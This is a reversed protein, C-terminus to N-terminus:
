KSKTRFWTRTAHCNACVVDCKEIEVLLDDWSCTSVSSSVNQKKIGRVHDYHMIYHPFHKGCDTCPEQEKIFRIFERRIIHRRAKNARDAKLVYEKGHKALFRGRVDKSPM